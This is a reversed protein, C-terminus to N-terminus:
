KNNKQQISIKKPVRRRKIFGAVDGSPTKQSYKWKIYPRNGDNPHFKQSLYEREIENLERVSGDIEVYVYTFGDEKPRLPFDYKIYLYLYQLFYLIILTSVIYLAIM